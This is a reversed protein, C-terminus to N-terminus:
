GIWEQRPEASPGPDYYVGRGADWVPRREAYRNAHCVPCECRPRPGDQAGLQPVDGTCIAHQGHICDPCVSRRGPTTM